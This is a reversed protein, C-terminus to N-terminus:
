KELIFLSTRSLALANWGDSSIVIDHIEGFDGTRWDIGGGPGVAVLNGHDTYALAYEVEPDVAAAMPTGPVTFMQALELGPLTFLAVENGGSVCASVFGSGPASLHLVEGRTDYQALPALDAPRFSRIERGSGAILHEPTGALITPGEFAESSVEEVLTVPDYGSISGDSFALFLRGGSFGSGTPGAPISVRNSVTFSGPTVSYVSDSTVAFVRSFGPWEEVLLVQRSFQVSGHVRGHVLELFLLYEGDGVVAYRGDSTFVCNQSPVATFNRQGALFSPHFPAPGPEQLCGCALLLVPALRRM